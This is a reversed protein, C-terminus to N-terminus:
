VRERCSARGIQGAYTHLYERLEEKFKKDKKLDRYARNLEDLAKILTEPVYRGGFEGFHGSSDPLNKNKM